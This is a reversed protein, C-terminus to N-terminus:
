VESLNKIRASIDGVSASMRQTNASIEQTVTSQEEIAGAVTTVAQHMETAAGAIRGISTAVEESVQQVSKIQQAIEDTAKATQDALNKVESAVVAFGRGSEGARAAEITANLALLNVQGAIGNILEVVGGMTKMSEDLEQARANSASSETIIGESAERATLMNGSIETISATMEEIAAAISQTDSVTEEAIRGTQIVPTVDTAYKVVKFPRGEMDMIPNYSAQIWIEDGSKTLRKYVRADYEGRALRQWFAAYEPSRAEEPEVFMRHHRGQIDSLTYGVANLFNQNATIITGDLNFEIVAQSKNIAEIQGEYDATVLRRETVDSAYKVVRVPQGNLGIIPNYSAQLSVEKGGKGFRQCEGVFAEGGRLREWFQQYEASKAYDAGVFMSHHKGKIEDLTYGVAQLFLDNATIITGDVHFEIVAQSRGIAVVQEKATDDVWEVSTGIRVGSRDFLPTALLNFVYDGIIISTKFPERMGDVLSRQHAPNVHFADFSQGLVNDASFSPLQKRIESECKKLMRKVSENLYVIIGQEDAIMLNVTLARTAQIVAANPSQGNEISDSM